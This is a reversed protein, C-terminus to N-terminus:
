IDSFFLVHSIWKYFREDTLGDESEVIATSNPRFDCEDRFTPVGIAVILSFKYGFKVFCLGVSHMLYCFYM